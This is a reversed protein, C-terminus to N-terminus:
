SVRLKIGDGCSGQIPRQGSASFDLAYWKMRCRLRPGGLPIKAEQKGVLIMYVNRKEV